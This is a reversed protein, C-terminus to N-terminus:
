KYELVIRFQHVKIDNWRDNHIRMTWEGDGHTTDTMLYSSLPLSLCYDDSNCEGDERQDDGIESSNVVEENEEDLVYIELRNNNQQQGGGVVWDDDQKPYSLEAIAKRITNGSDRDYVVTVDFDLQAPGSSSNGGMEFDTWTGAYNVHVKVEDTSTMGKSSKVTLVVEYEGPAVSTWDVTEGDLDADNEPDGDGDDDESPALDWSWETIFDDSTAAESDSADLAVTTTASIRRDSTEKDDECIWILIYSSASVDEGLCDFESSADVSITATPAEASAEVVDVARSAEASRVGDSITLVVTFSGAVGFTWEATRGTADVTGNGDFDWRYSLSGDNPLSGSADFAVTDGVRINNAPSLTFVADLGTEEGGETVCGALSSAVMLLMLSAAVPWRGMTFPAWRTWLFGTGQQPM